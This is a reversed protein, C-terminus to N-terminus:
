SLPVAGIPTQDNGRKSAAVLIGLLSWVFGSLFLVGFLFDVLTVQEESTLKWLYQYTGLCWDAVRRLAAKLLSCFAQLRSRATPLGRLEPFQAHLQDQLSMTHRNGGQHLVEPATGNSIYHEGNM